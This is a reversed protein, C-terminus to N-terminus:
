VCTDPTLSSGSPRSHACSPRPTPPGSGPFQDLTLATKETVPGAGDTIWLRRLNKPQNLKTESTRPTLNGLVLHSREVNYHCRWDDLTGPCRGPVPVVLCEPVGRAALREVGRRLVGGADLVAVPQRADAAAEGEEAEHEGVEAVLALDRSRGRVLRPELQGDDLAGIMSGAEDEQQSAPHDLAAEGPEGAVAAQGSVDFGQDGAAGGHEIEGGGAQEGAPECVRSCM